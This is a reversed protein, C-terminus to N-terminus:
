PINKCMLGSPSMACKMKKHLSTVIQAITAQTLFAGSLTVM